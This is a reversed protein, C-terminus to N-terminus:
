ATIGDLGRDRGALTVTAGLPLDSVDGGLRFTYRGGAIMWRKSGQDWRSLDGPSVHITVRATRHPAVTVRAFGVLAVSPVAGASGRGRPQGTLYAQVVDAGTRQGTNTVTARLTVRDGRGVAVKEDHLAFSTYSLGYGFPYEPRVHHEAYWRYGVDVGESFQVPGPNGPPDMRATGAEAPQAANSSPFTVPLRGSFNVRGTLLAALATGAQEGPYWQDVIAAVRHGWGATLVAGGENLVVVTRPNVASVAKILEIQQPTLALTTHDWWESSQESAVVVAVHARRAAAVAKAIVAPTISQGTPDQPWPLEGHKVRRDPPIPVYGVFKKGWAARLGARDNVTGPPIDMDISGQSGPYTDNGILALTQHTSLPLARKRNQLLVAGEEATRLAVAKGQAKEAPSVNGIRGQLPHQILGLRFAASLLPAALRELVTKPLKIMSAPAYNPGCKSQTINAAIMGPQNDRLLICDTRSFPPNGHTWRDLDTRMVQADAAAAVGNVSNYSSMVGAPRVASIIAEFPALYVEQLATQSVISDDKGPTARGNAQSYAVLHLLISGVGQSQVGRVEAAGEVANLLPDEGGVVESTRGFDSSRVVNVMTSSAFDVGQSYAQAGIVRGYADALAADFSSGLDIPAPLLSSGSLPGMAHVGIRADDENFSPICLAAVAPTYGEYPDKANGGQLYLLSALEAPTAKAEVEAVRQATTLRHSTVWPCAGPPAPDDSTPSASAPAGASPTGTPLGFHYAAVASGVLVVAIAAGIVVTWMRHASNTM